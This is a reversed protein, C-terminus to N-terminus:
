RCTGLISLFVLVVDFKRSFRFVKNMAEGFLATSHEAWKKIQARHEVSSSSDFRQILTSEIERVAMMTGSTTPATLSPQTSSELAESKPKSVASQASTKADKSVALPTLFSLSSDAVIDKKLVPNVQVASITEISPDVLKNNARVRASNSAKVAGEYASTPKLDAPVIPEISFTNSAAKSQLSSLLSERVVVVPQRQTSPTVFASSAFTPNKANVFSRVYDRASSPTSETAASTISAIPLSPVAIPAIPVRTAVSESFQAPQPTPTM